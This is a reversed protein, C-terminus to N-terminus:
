ATCRGALVAAANPVPPIAKQHCRNQLICAQSMGGMYFCPGQRQCVESRLSATLPDHSLLIQSHHTAYQAQSYGLYDELGLYKDLGAAV